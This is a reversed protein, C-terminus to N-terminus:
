HPDNYCQAPLEDILTAPLVQCGRAHTSCKEESPCSTRADFLLDRLVRDHLDGGAPQLRTPRSRKKDLLRTGRGATFPHGARRVFGARRRHRSVSCGTSIRFVSKRRWGACIRAATRYPGCHHHPWIVHASGARVMSDCNFISVLGHLDIGPLFGSRMTAKKQRQLSQVRM